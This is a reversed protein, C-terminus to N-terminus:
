KGNDRILQKIETLDEKMDTKMADFIQKTEVKSERHKEDSSQIAKEISEKLNVHAQDNSKGREECVDNYVLADKCPHKKSNSTHKMVFLYCGTIGALLSGISVTAIDIAM